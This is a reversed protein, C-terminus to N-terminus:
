NLHPSAPRPPRPTYDTSLIPVHSISLQERCRVCHEIHAMLDEALLTSTNGSRIEERFATQVVDCNLESGSRGEWGAPLNPTAM